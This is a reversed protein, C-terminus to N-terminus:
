KNILICNVSDVQYSNGETDRIHIQENGYRTYTLLEVEKSSGDPFKILAYNYEYGSDFGFKTYLILLISIIISVILLSIYQKQILKGM